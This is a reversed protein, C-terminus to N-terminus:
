SSLYMQWAYPLKVVKESHLNAANQHVFNQATWEDTLWMANGTPANQPRIIEVSVEKNHIPTILSVRGSFSYTFVTLKRAALREKKSRTNKLRLWQCSPYVSPHLATAPGHLLLRIHWHLIQQVSTGAWPKCNTLPNNLVTNAYLTNCMKTCTSTTWSNRCNWNLGLRLYINQHKQQWTIGHM